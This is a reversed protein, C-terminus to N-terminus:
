LTATHSQLSVLVGCDGTSIASARLNIAKHGPVGVTYDFTNLVAPFLEYLYSIRPTFTRKNADKM